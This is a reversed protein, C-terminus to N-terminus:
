KGESLRCALQKPLQHEYIGRIVPEVDYDVRHFSIKGSHTDFLTYCSKTDGDRPQGVSGSTVITKNRSSYIFPVHTHGLFLYDINIFHMFKIYNDLDSKETSLYEDLPYEFGGHILLIKKQSRILRLMTPLSYILRRYEKNLQQSTWFVSTAANYSIYDPIIGTAVSQDHNGKIMFPNYELTLLQLCEEPFTYYGVLDGTCWLEDINHDNLSDLVVKLAMLNAHIDSIIGILM